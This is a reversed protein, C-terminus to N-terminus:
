QPVASTTLHWYHLYGYREDYVFMREYGLPEHCVYCHEAALARVGACDTHECPGACPGAFTGPSALAVGSM